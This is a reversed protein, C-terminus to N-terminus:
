PREVCRTRSKEPNGMSKVAHWERRKKEKEKGKKRKQLIDRSHNATLGKASVIGRLSKKCRRLWARPRSITLAMTVGGTCHPSDIGLQEVRTCGGIRFRSREVKRWRTERKAMQGRRRNNRGAAIQVRKVDPCHGIREKRSSSSSSQPRRLATDNNDWRKSNSVDVNAEERPTVSPSPSPYPFLAVSITDHALASRHPTFGGIFRGKTEARRVPSIEILLM